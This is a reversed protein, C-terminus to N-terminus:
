KKPNYFFTFRAGNMYEEDQVEVRDRFCREVGRGMEYGHVEQLPWVNITWSSINETERSVEVHYSTSDDIYKEEKDLPHVIPKRILHDYLQSIEWNEIDFDVEVTNGSHWDIKRVM